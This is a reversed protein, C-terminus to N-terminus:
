LCPIASFTNLVPTASCQHICFWSRPCWCRYFLCYTCTKQKTKFSKYFLLQIYLLLKMDRNLGLYM